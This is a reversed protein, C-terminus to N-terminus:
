ENRTDIQPTRCFAPKKFSSELEIGPISSAKANASSIFRTFAFVCETMTKSVAGVPCVRRSREKGVVRSSAKSFISASRDLNPPLKIHICVKEVFIHDM